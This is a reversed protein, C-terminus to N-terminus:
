KDRSYNDSNYSATSIELIRMDGIFSELAYIPMDFTNHIESTTSSPYILKSFDDQQSNVM